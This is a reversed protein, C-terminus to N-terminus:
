DLPGLNSWSVLSSHNCPNFSFGAFSWCPKNRPIINDSIFLLFYYYVIKLKKLLNSIHPKWSWKADTTVGLYKFSQVRDIQTGNPRLEFDEFVSFFLGTPFTFLWPQVCSVRCFVPGNKIMWLVLWSM